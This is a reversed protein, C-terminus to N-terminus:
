LHNYRQVQHQLVKRYWWLKSPKLRYAFGETGASEGNKAWGLWGYNQAHVQYYIDYKDADAGTLKMQIAELRLSEGSTGSMEGNSKFGQWGINEVQTQYDIGLNTPDSTKIEIGELRLGKGSIDGKSMWGQWGINQIQTQYSCYINKAFPQETTGPAPDGKPVMIINIAELRYAFGETGASEGNKAWGLWGYNQAHVQYYIDFKDADTGTLKGTDDVSAIISDSSTWTIGKVDTTNEPDYSVTLTETNGKILTSNTKNLAISTLPITVVVECTATQSGVTATITTKGSSLATVKGTNNVSAITPQSSTWSVTKDSTTIEPEYSVILDETNGKILTCINKNLTINSLPIAPTDIHPENLIPLYKITETLSFNTTADSIRDAIADENATHWYNNTAVM